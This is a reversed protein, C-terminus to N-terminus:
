SKPAFYGERARVTLNPIGKPAKVEVRIKRWKGDHKKNTPTYRLLYQNHLEAQILKMFYDLNSFTNIIFIKGGTTNALDQIRYSGYGLRSGEMIAYIMVDSNGAYKFIESRSHRSTNDEGDTILILAKKDRNIQRCHDLGAYIADYIASRRRSKIIEEKNKQKLNLDAVPSIIRIERDFVVIFYEDKGGATELIRTITNQAEKLTSGNRMSNSIDLIIGISTQVSPHDFSTISQRRNNEYIAFNEKKLGLFFRNQSDTVSVWVNVPNMPENPITKGNQLNQSNLSVATCLLFATIRGFVSIIQMHM